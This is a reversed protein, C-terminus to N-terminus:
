RLLLLDNWWQRALAKNWSSARTCRGPAIEIREADPFREQPDKALCRLIVADLDPPVEDRIQSLPVVPDRAQAIIADIANPVAFPPRGALL